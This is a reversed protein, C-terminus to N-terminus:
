RILEISQIDEMKIKQTAAIFVGTKSDCAHKLSICQDPWLYLDDVRTIAEVDTKTIFPGVKKSVNYKIVLRSKTVIM